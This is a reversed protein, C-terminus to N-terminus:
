SQPDPTSSTSKEENASWPSVPGGLVERTPEPTSNSSGCRRRPLAKLKQLSRNTPWLWSKEQSERMSLLIENTEQPRMFKGIPKSSKLNMSSCHSEERIQLPRRSCTTS